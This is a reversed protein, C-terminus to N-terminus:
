RNKSGPDLIRSGPDPIPLFWSGPDPIRSLCGPDAVSDYCLIANLVSSYLKSLTYCYLYINKYFVLLMCHFGVYMRVAQKLKTFMCDTVQGAHLRVCVICSIFNFHLVKFSQQNFPVWALSNLHRWIPGSLIEWNFIQLIKPLVTLFLTTFFNWTINLATRQRCNKATLILAPKRLENNHKVSRLVRIWFYGSHEPNSLIRIWLAEKWIKFDYSRSRIPIKINRLLLVRM